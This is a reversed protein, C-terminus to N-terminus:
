SMLAKRIDSYLMSWEKMTAPFFSNKFYEYNARYHPVVKSNRMAYRTNQKSIVRFPYKPSQEKFIKDFTVYNETGVDRNCLNFALCRIYNKKQLEKCQM